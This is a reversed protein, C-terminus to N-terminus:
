KLTATQHDQSHRSSRFRLLGWLRPSKRESYGKVEHEYEMSHNIFFGFALIMQMKAIGMNHTRAAKM